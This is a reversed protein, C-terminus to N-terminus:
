IPHDVFIITDALRAREEIQDWPSFGDILWHDSDHVANIAERLELEATRVWGPQFQLADIEILPLGHKEAVQYGTNDKRWWRQWYDRSQENVYILM